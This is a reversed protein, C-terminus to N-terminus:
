RKITKTQRGISKSCGWWKTPHGFRQTDWNQITICAGPSDCVWPHERISTAWVTKVENKEMFIWADKSINRMHDRSTASLNFQCAKTNTPFLCLRTWTTHSGRITRQPWAISCQGRSHFLLSFSLYSCPMITPHVNVVHGCLSDFPRVIDAGYTVEDDEAVAGNFLALVAFISVCSSNVRM